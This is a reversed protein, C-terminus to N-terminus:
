PSAHSGGCPKSTSTPRSTRNADPKGTWKSDPTSIYRRAQELAERRQSVNKGRQEQHSRVLVYRSASQRLSPVSIEPHTAERGPLRAARTGSRSQAGPGPHRRRTPCRRQRAGVVIFFAVIGAWYLPDGRGLLSMAQLLVALMSGVFAGVACLALVRVRRTVRPSTGPAFRQLATVTVGLLVLIFGGLTASAGMLAIM